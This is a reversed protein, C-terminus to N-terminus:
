RLLRFYLQESAPNATAQGPVVPVAGREVSVLVDGLMVLRELDRPNGRMQVLLEARNGDLGFPRAGAVPALRGLYDVVRNLEAHTRVDDVTVLMGKAMEAFRYTSTRSALTGALQHTGEVLATELSGGESTWSVPEGGQYLNWRAQWYGGSLPAVQGILIAEPRYRKSAERVTDHFGGAVDAFKVRGQDELDLLPYLLPVGREAAVSELARRASSVSDGGVLYRQGRESVALWVLVGPRDRGWVPLGRESVARELAAGDFTVRLLYPREEDGANEAYEFRQVYRSATDLMSDLEAFGELSRAGTVRVLVQSLGQEFAEQREPRDRTPVPVEVSYLEPVPVAWVAGPVLFLLLLWALSLRRGIWLHQHTRM